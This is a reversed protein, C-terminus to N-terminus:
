DSFKIDDRLNFTYELGDESVTYDKALDPDVGIEKNIKLLSSYFIDTGYMTSGMCADYNGDAMDGVAIVLSDKTTEDAYVPATASFMMVGALLLSVTKRKM